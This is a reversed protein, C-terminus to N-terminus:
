RRFAERLNVVLITIAAVALTAGSSSGGTM